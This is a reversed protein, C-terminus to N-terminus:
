QNLLQSVEEDTTQSFEDYWAGVAYFDHPRLPCVVEDVLNEMEACTSFAAVPVALILRRLHQQRLARIAARMTAGTAIGDDVLIIIKDKLEPFPKKGRYVSERRMLEQQELKIINNIESNSINLKKIIDNNFITVGGTAIAGMALEEHGPVGLKRVVFIDLPVSLATAIEFAVPVGGRPLALVIVYPNKTYTKLQDALVKGAEYRDSFKKM